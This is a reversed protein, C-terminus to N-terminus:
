PASVASSSHVAEIRAPVAAAAGLERQYYRELQEVFPRTAGQVEFRQGLRARYVLPFDPKRLLPWGKGLFPTNTEILVTQVPAGANRAILAFGGKFGSVPGQTTRTGEPFILLQRGARLESVAGRVMLLPPDNCIYSALRAGGGLLPNARLPAKIICALDPLRSALLVMDLLSPHNPAIVLSGEGRLADLAALDIRVIGSARLLGLFGRCFAMVAARGLPMRWSRPLVVCLLASLSSWALAWAGFLLLGTYFVLYEYLRRLRAIL